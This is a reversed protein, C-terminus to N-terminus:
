PRSVSAVVAAAVDSVAAWDDDTATFAVIWHGDGRPHSRQLTTVGVGVSRHAVLMEVERDDRDVRVDLVVGDDLREAALIMEEALRTGTTRSGDRRVAMVAPPEGSWRRPVVTLPDTRLVAWDDPVALSAGDGLVIPELRVPEATCGSM